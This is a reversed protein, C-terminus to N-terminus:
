YSVRFTPSEDPRSGRWDYVRTTSIRVYGLCKQVKGIDVLHAQASNAATAGLVNSGTNDGSIDVQQAISLTPLCHAETAFRTFENKSVQSLGTTYFHTALPGIEM